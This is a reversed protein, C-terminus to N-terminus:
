PGPFRRAPGIARTDGQPTGQGLGQPSPKTSGPGQGKAGMGPHTVILCVHGLGSYM